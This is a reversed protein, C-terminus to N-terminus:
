FYTTGFVSKDYAKKWDARPVPVTVSGGEEAPAERDLRPNFPAQMVAKQAPTLGDMFEPPWMTEDRLYARGYAFTAPAFRYLALRRAAAGHWALTGHTAAETFLIVDGACVPPSVGREKALRHERVGQPCPFNAKHSGPLIVFGGDGEKTDTLALSAALLNCRIRGGHCGYALEYDFKGTEDYAGGHMIFGDAGREQQLIFPSHDLRYGTGCLERYYAQMRPHALMNRLAGGEPGPLKWGLIGGLDQRGTVGDGAMSPESGGLRLPGTREQKPSTHWPRHHLCAAM